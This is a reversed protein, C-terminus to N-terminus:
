ELNPRRLRSVPGDPFLRGLVARLVVLFALLSGFVAAVLHGMIVGGTSAFYVVYVTGLSWWLIHVALAAFGLSVLIGLPSTDGPRRVDDHGALPALLRVAHALAQVGVLTALLVPTVLGAGFWLAAFVAPAEALFAPEGFLGVTSVPVTVALAVELTRPGIPSDLDM